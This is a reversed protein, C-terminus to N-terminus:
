REKILLHFNNGYHQIELWGATSLCPKFISFTKALGLTAASELPSVFSTDYDLWHPQDVWFELQRRSLFFCGAHPNLAPQFAAPGSPSNILRVPGPRVLKSLENNDIPGDIYFRDVQNPESAYEVRQPLLVCDPGFNNEFWVLKSLFYPDHVVLDDELYCFWDYDLQLSAQLHKHVEFGLLRPEELSCHIHNFSSGFSQPLYDLVHHVGDTVIDITVDSRFDTNAPYVSRDALHLYSQNKGLRRLSILQHKLAEIRPQPNPRLSQHNGDGHPNWHHVVSFLIKM